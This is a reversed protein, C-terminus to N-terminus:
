TIYIRNKKEHYPSWWSRCEKGVHREESRGVAGDPDLDPDELALHDLVHRAASVARSGSGISAGFRILNRLDNLPWIPLACTQVGTVAVDRIGDEAQFFFSFVARLQGM